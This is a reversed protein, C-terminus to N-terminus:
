RGGPKKPLISDGTAKEGEGSFWAYKGQNVIEQDKQFEAFVSMAYADIEAKNFDTFVGSLYDTPAKKYAHALAAAKLFMQRNIKKIDSVDNGLAWRTVFAMTDDPLIYGLQLELTKIRVTIDIKEAETMGDKNAEFQDKIADLEKRKKSIVLDEGLVLLVIEDFTPINFTIKCLEEQCNRIALIEKHSFEKDKDKDHDLFINTIDGCQEIQTQNPCRLQCFMKKGNFPVAVWNFLAGRIKEIPNYGVFMQEDNFAKGGNVRERLVETVWGNVLDKLKSLHKKTM